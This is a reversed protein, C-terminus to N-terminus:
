WKEVVTSIGALRGSGGFPRCNRRISCVASRLRRWATSMSLCLHEAVLEISGLQRYATVVAQEPPTLSQIADALEARWALTPVHFGAWQDDIESRFRRNMRQRRLAHRCHLRAIGRIWALFREKGYKRDFGLDSRRRLREALIVLAEHVLDPALLRDLRCERLLHAAASRLECQYRSNGAFLRWTERYDAGGALLRCYIEELERFAGSDFTSVAFDEQL